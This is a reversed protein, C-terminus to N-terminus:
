KSKLGVAYTQIKGDLLYIYSVLGEVEAKGKIESPKDGEAEGEVEAEIESPKDGEDEGEGEALFIVKPLGSTPFYRM